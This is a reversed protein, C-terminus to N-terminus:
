KPLMVHAVSCAGRETWINLADLVSQKNNFLQHAVYTKMEERSIAPVM